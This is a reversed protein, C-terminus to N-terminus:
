RKLWEREISHLKSHCSNCLTILNDPNDNKKDLDIHHIAYHCYLICRSCNQCAHNDRELIHQRTVGHNLFFKNYKGSYDEEEKWRTHYKGSHLIRFLPDEWAEKLALSISGSRKKRHEPDNWLEKLKESTARKQKESSPQGMHALSLKIKQEESMPGKKRGKLSESIKNKQEESMPENKRGRLADGIKQKHEDSLKNGKLPHPTLNIHKKNNM